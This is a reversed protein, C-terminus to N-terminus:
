PTSDGRAILKSAYLKFVTKIALPIKPVVIELTMYWAKLITFFFNLLTHAVFAFNIFFRSFVEKLSDKVVRFDM